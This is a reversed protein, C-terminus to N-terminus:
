TLADRAFTTDFRGAHFNEPVADRPALASQVVLVRLRDPASPPGSGPFLGSPPRREVM